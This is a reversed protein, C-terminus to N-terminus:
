HGRIACAALRWAGSDLPARTAAQLARRLAAIRRGEQLRRWGDRIRTGVPDLRLWEEEWEPPFSLGRAAYAERLIAHVTQERATTGRAVAVNSAEHRRYHVLVQPVNALKGTMALRLFLDLDENLNKMHERYGGIGRVATARMIVAPHLIAQAHGLLLSREIRTHDEFIRAQAGPTGDSRVFRWGTGCAVIEPAQEMLAVQLRLREPMCVDDADMRAVLNGKAIALGDNLAGVIGTNARHIVRIRADSREYERLQELSSDTSGDDVVIFEFDGFTQTLMSEVSDALYRAANYVPMLISVPVAKMVWSARRVEISFSLLDLRYRM